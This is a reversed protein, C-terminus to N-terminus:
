WFYSFDATTEAKRKTQCTSRLLHYCARVCGVWQQLTKYRQWKLQASEHDMKPTSSLNKWTKGKTTPVNRHSIKIPYCGRPQDFASFRTELLKLHQESPWSICPIRFFHVKIAVRKDSTHCLQPITPLHLSKDNEKKKRANCVSRM